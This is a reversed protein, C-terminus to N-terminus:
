GWRLKFALANDRTSFYFKPDDFIDWDYSWGPTNADLWETIEQNVKYTPTLFRSLYDGGETIVMVHHGAKDTEYDMM